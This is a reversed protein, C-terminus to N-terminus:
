LKKWLNKKKMKEVKFILILPNESSPPNIEKLYDKLRNKEENSLESFDDVFDPNLLFLSEGDLDLEKISEESIKLKIKLFKAVEEKNSENNVQIDSDSDIKPKNETTKNKIENLSNKLKEKKEENIELEDIDGPELLFLSEGDLDLNNIDEDSFHLKVKLYKAVEEKTSTEIIKINLQNKVEMLSNKLREKEEENIEEMDNIDTEELLFLSQADLGLADISEQSLKSKLRLFKTM